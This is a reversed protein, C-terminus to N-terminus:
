TRIRSYLIQDGGDPRNARLLGEREFGLVEMWRHGAEFGVDVYAETRRPACVDLYRQVARTVALLHPGAATSLYAWAVASGPWKDWLGAIAVPTDDVFATYADLEALWDLMDAAMYPLCWSQAPQLQLREWHEVHFPLVRM